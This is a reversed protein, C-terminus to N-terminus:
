DQGKVKRGSKKAPKEAKTINPFPTFLDAEVSKGKALAELALEKPLKATARFTLKHAGTESPEASLETMVARVNGSATIEPISKLYNGWNRLSGPPIEFQCTQAKQISRKDAVEVIALVRRKDSCRKGNGKEATGFRNHPCAACTESQKDPAQEHPVMKGEEGPAATAFAYCGPTQGEENPDYAEGFYTKVLGYTLIVLPVKNGEAKKGDPLKVIGGKHTIRPLGLQETAVENKAKEALEIEWDEMKVLASTQTKQIATKAM